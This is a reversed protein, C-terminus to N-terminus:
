LANKKPHNYIERYSPISPSADQKMSNDLLIRGAPTLEFVTRSGSSVLKRVLGLELLLALESQDM